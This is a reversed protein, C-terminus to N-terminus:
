AEDVDDAVNLENTAEEWKGGSGITGQAQHVGCTRTYVQM